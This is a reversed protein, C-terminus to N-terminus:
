NISLICYLKKRKTFASVTNAAACSHRDCSIMNTDFASNSDVCHKNYITALRILAPDSASRRFPSSNINCGNSHRNSRLQDGDSLEISPPSVKVFPVFPLRKRCNTSPFYPLGNEDQEQEQEQEDDIDSSSPECLFSFEFKDDWSITKDCDDSNSEYTNSHLVINDATLLPTCGLEDFKENSKELLRSLNNCTQALDSEHRMTSQDANDVDADRVNVKSSRFFSFLKSNKLKINKQRHLPSTETTSIISSRNTNANFSSTFLTRREFKPSSPTLIESKCDQKRASKRFSAMRRCSARTLSFCKVLTKNFDGGYPLDIDADIFQVDASPTMLNLENSCNNNMEDGQKLPRFPTSSAPMKKDMIPLLDIYKECITTPPTEVVRKGHFSNSEASVAPLNKRNMFPLKSPTENTDCKQETKNSKLHKNEKLIERLEDVCPLKRRNLTQSKNEQVAFPKYELSTDMSGSDNAHQISSKFMKTPNCAIARAVDGNHEMVPKLKLSQIIIKVDPGRHIKPPTSIGDMRYHMGLSRADCESTSASKRLSTM